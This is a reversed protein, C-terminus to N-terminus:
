ASAGKRLLDRRRAPTYGGWIGYAGPYDGHDDRLGEALCDLRVPCEGCVRLAYAEQVERLLPSSGNPFWPDDTGSVPYDRCEAREMWDRSM